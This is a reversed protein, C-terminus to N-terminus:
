YCMNSDVIQPVIDKLNLLALTYYDDVQHSLNKILETANKKAAPVKYDEAHYCPILDMKGFTLM